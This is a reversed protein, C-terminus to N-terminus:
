AANASARRTSQTIRGRMGANLSAERNEERANLHFYGLLSIAYIFLLGGTLVAAPVEQGPLALRPDLSFPMPSGGWLRLLLWTLSLLLVPRFVHRHSVIGYGPLLTALATRVLQESRRSKMRHRMLLVRSFEHTEAQGEVEACAPCLAHERRRQACRRCVTTGCNSCTRLPLKASQLIGAWVGLVALLLALISFPWGSAEMSDRLGTPLSGRLERPNTAKGLAKWFLSPSLWLDALPLLGDTTAQSQYSKVLEFNLASARNLADSAQQYEFRQTRIQSTNFLAAANTPDAAASKEYAALADNARGQMALVNGLNNLARADGPWLELTRRYSKEATALDGGRRAVWALGFHVIPNESQESAIRALQAQRAPTWPANELTPVGYFPAASEHMPLAMRELVSLSLPTVLVFATLTVFLARERVRVVPWLYALMAIAPLTLGFGACFPLVLVAWSWWRAGEPSGFRGLTERIPHLLEHRRAWIVLMATLTLGAFLAQFLLIFTNAALSLQLGFNDALHELATAYRQLAQSPDRTLMWAALTLHPEVFTPDLEAAGRVDILAQEDQGAQKAMLGRRYFLHSEVPLSTLHRAQKYAIWDSVKRLDAPPAMSSARDAGSPARQAAPTTAGYAVVNFVLTLAIALLFRGAAFRSALSPSKERAIWPVGVAPKAAVHRIGRHHTTRLRM